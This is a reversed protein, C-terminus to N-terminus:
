KKLIIKKIIKHNNNQISLFYIGDTLGSLNLEETNQITNKSIIKRGQIDFLDIKTEGVIENTLQITIYNQTPNPYVRVFEILNESTSLSNEITIIVTNNPLWGSSSNLIDAKFSDQGPEFQSNSYSIRGENIDSQTFTNGITLATGNKTLLGLIPTETLTYTQNNDSQSPTSANIETNLIIKDSSTTTIIGNNEFNLNNTVTSLSCFDLSFSNISGGDGNYNDVVQLKWIGDAPLNNLNSLLQLPKIIGSIAPAPNIGCELDLGSDDLIADIDDEGGCPEEFLTIRPSGISAPGDLYITMDQVWTHTLNLTVNIDGIVFGGSVTVPVSALSNAVSGISADSFDTGIFQNQCNLIGTQFSSVSYNTATGCRNSPKVRWYYVTESALNTVTYNTNATSQSEIISNFNFDTAIELMYNEANIDEEWTLNLTTSLGTQGNIPYTTTVSNFQNSLIKLNVYRTETDLGNSGVVGISYEGPIVNSLNSVTMTFIGNTNIPNSSFNVNAGAPINIASLNVNGSSAGNFNFSFVAEENACKVQDYGLPVIGFSSDIGSIILGFPQDNNVLTGKSSITITYDGGNVSDIKITEVTDVFNDGNRVALLSANSQLRWPFYTNSGQTIRIDLDNVLAPITSNLVGNNVIGPVDTWCITATLPAGAISKVTMTYTDNTAIKEESIWTSLGNNTIAIAAAKANLLGWGFKADPGANGADDATHCVLGKLTSSRIFKQYLNSYHQQLLLLTGMVNPSAMSTGSLSTYQNDGSSTTSNLSTGNGTIDPKIRFDDSPGQSSSSNINVLLLNGNTDVIADQANAIVLNNKGNKNGTLKDYGATSPNQNTNGGDNGASVVMLYYPSVYQIEDWARTDASYAGIYWPGPASSIPVGYSHNSLLLGNQIEALVEAEDNTWDFTKVTALNAMGKANAQVGTATITGTVHTGHFSNSNLVTVGDGIQVRGGFEQHSIRVPGGDWVGGIMNQGNLNLGLSGGSNLHNTRTSKAANINNISFYKPSGDPHLGILEDFSGDSNYKFIEWQNARAALIAKEKEIKAKKAFQVQLTKIKAIDYQELLEKKQEVTQGKLLFPTTFVIIILIIIKGSFYINKM